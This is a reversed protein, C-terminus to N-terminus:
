CTATTSARTTSSSRSTWTTPTTSTAASRIPRTWARCSSTSRGPTSTTSRLRPLRRPLQREAGLRLARPRLPERGPGGDREPVRQAPLRRDRLLQGCRPIRRTASRAASGSSAACRTRTATAPRSRRRSSTPPSAPDHHHDRRRHRQTRVPRGAPGEAGRDAPHRVAGPQVRCSEDAARRGGARRGLARQQAGPLHRPHRRLRQGCEPDRGADHEAGDPHLRGAAPHRCGPDLTETFVNMTVPVDQFSEDRKRATVIIEEMETSQAMAPLAVAAALIGAVATSLCTGKSTPMITRRTLLEIAIRVPGTDRALEKRLIAAGAVMAKLKGFALTGAWTSSGATPRSSSTKPACSLCRAGSARRWPKRRRSRPIASTSARRAHNEKRQTDQPDLLRPEAPRNRAFDAPMPLGRARAPLFVGDIARPHDGCLWLLHARGDHRERRRARPQAGRTRVPAGGRAAGAHLARRDPRHRRRGLLPRPDRRQARRRLGRGCPPPQRRLPRDAGAAVDHVPGAGHGQGAEDHPPAPIGPRARRGRPAQPDPRRGAAGPEPPRQPRAGHGSQRSRRGRAGHAFLNSYSERRIEGDTVIDLGAEEQARIAVITADDQAEVLHAGSNAVAGARPRAASLPRRAKRPRDALGAAAHQRRADHPLPCPDADPM